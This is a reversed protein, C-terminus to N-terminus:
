MKATLAYNNMLAQMGAKNQTICEVIDGTKLNSVSALAGVSKGNITVDMIIYGADPTFTAATGDKSTAM